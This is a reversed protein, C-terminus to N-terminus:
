HGIDYLRVSGGFMKTEYPVSSPSGITICHGGKAQQGESCNPSASKAIIDACRGAELRQGEPCSPTAPKAIRDVCRGAELRQAQPCSPKAIIDVCRDAELRQGQLCSPQPSPTPEVPSVTQPVSPSYSPLPLRSQVPAEDDRPTQHTPRGLEILFL